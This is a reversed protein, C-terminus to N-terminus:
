SRNIYNLKKRSELEGREEGKETEWGQLKKVEDFIIISQLRGWEVGKKRCFFM